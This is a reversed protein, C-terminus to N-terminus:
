GLAHYGTLIASAANAVVFAAARVSQAAIMAFNSALLTGGALAAMAAAHAVLLALAMIAVLTTVTSTTLEGRIVKSALGKKRM